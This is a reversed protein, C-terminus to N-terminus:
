GARCPAPVEREVGLLEYVAVMASRVSYEMSFAVDGPIEVYQGLFAFNNM